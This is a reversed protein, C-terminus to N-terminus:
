SACSTRRDTGQARGPDAPPGAAGPDPGLAQSTSPAPPSSCSTIPRSWATAQHQRHLGRGAAAPRAARGRALRRGRRGDGRPSRTSRTSSSSATRSSRRLAQTKIDDENILKGAEEDVLLKFAQAVPARKRKRKRQRRPEPVHEAAPQDDGGHRAAGHDGRRCRCRPCNSRSRRARRARGRAAEQSIEAPDRLRAPQTRAGMRAGAAAACRPHAGRGDEARTRVRQQHRSATMKLSITPLTASSRNSTAASM